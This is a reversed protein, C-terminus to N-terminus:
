PAAPLRVHTAGAETVADIELPGPAPLAWRRSQGALLYFFGPLEPLVTGAAKIALGTLRAHARGQNSLQLMGDQLSWQLDPRAQPAALFVPVGIRMLLRLQGQSSAGASPVETFYVRWTQELDQASAPRAFGLRVVQRAQPALRFLPPNVLLDAAPQYDDQGQQQAWRLPQAQFVKEEDTENSLTISAARAGPLFDVRVPSVSVGAQAASAAFWLALALRRM